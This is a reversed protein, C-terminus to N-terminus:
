NRNRNILVLRLIQLATSLFSAVYTLAAAKLVSKTGDLDKKDVLGLKELQKKARNSADFEVPLTVLQFLLGGSLLIIGLTFLGSLQTALGIMLFITAFRSTFNVVPVLSSRLRLMAYKEKDQIAHGCEHAAVSISAISNNSYIDNSLNIHKKSPDYHDTLNGDIESITVNNLGNSDLIRRAVEKGTLKGSSIVKSYKNYSSNIKSQAILPLVIALGILVLQIINMNM